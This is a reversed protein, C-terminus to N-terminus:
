FLLVYDHQWRWLSRSQNYLHWVFHGPVKWHHSCEWNVTINKLLNHSLIYKSNYYLLLLTFRSAKHFSHRGPAPWFIPHVAMKNEWSVFEELIHKMDLSGGQKDWFPMWITASYCSLITFTPSGWTWHLGNRKSRNHNLEFATSHKHDYSIYGSYTAEPKENCSNISNM